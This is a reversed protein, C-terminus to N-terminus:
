LKASKEILIEAIKKDIYYNCYQSVWDYQGMPNIELFVFDGEPTLILDISGTNWQGIKIFKKSKELINIPLLFPVYRNPMETNYNRFDIKTKDDNQSFIAMSFFVNEIFFVRIEVSKEIYEQVLSQAFNNSFNKNIDLEITGSGYYLFKETELIPPHYLSKTIYKKNNKIFSLLDEKNNTVITYPIKFGCKKAIELNLIKNNEVEQKYSGIITNANLIEISYLVPLQEKKLYNIWLNSKLEVPLIPIYGRRNWIILSKFNSYSYTNSIVISFNVSDTDNNKRIVSKKYFHLWEMVKNASPDCNETIIIVPREINKEM